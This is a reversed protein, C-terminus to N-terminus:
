ICESTSAILFYFFFLAFLLHRINNFINQHHSAKVLDPVSSYVSENTHFEYTGPGLLIKLSILIKFTYVQHKM